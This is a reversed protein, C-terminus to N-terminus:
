GVAIVVVTRAATRVRAGVALAGALVPLLVAHPVPVPAIRVAAMRMATMRMATMRMAPGAAGGVSPGGPVPLVGM